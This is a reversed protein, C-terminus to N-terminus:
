PSVSILVADDSPAVIFEEVNAGLDNAASLNGQNEELNEGTFLPWAMRASEDIGLFGSVHTPIFLPDDSGRNKFEGIVNQGDPQSEDLFFIVRDNPSSVAASLEDAPIESSARQDIHILGSEGLKESGHSIKDPEVVYLVHAGLDRGGDAFEGYDVTYGEIVDIIEGTGVLDARAAVDQLTEKADVLEEFDYVTSKQVSAAVQKLTVRDPTSDSDGEEGTIALVGGTAAALFSIFVVVKSRM